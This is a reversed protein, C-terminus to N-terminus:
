SNGPSPNPLWSGEQGAWVYPPIPPCLPTSLRVLLHRHLAHPGACIAQGGLDSSPYQHCAPGQMSFVSM